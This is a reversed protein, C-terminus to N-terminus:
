RPQCPIMELLGHHVQEVVRRGDHAWQGTDPDRVMTAYTGDTPDIWRVGEVERGADFCRVPGGYYMLVHEPYIRAM